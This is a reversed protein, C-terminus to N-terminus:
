YLQKDVQDEEETAHILKNSVDVPTAVPNANQMEFRELLTQTYTPQGMWVQGTEQDQVVKMGLFHHLNGMDKIEFRRGIERKVKDLDMKSDAALLIDDVYVGLFFSEGGSHHYYV